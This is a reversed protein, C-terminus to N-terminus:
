SNLQKSILRPRTVIIIHLLSGALSSVAVVTGCKNQIMTPLVAKTLAVYGLFNLEMVARDVALETDEALSRQSRGANNVLIDIKGFEDLVTKVAGDQPNLILM